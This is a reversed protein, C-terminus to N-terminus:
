PPGQPARMAREVVGLKKSLTDPSAAAKAAAAALAAGDCPWRDIGLAACSEALDAAEIGRRLAEPSGGRDPHARLAVARRAATIEQPEAPWRKLGLEVAFWPPPAAGQGLAIRLAAEFGAGRCEEAVDFWAVGRGAFNLVQDPRAGGSRGARGLAACLASAVAFRLCAGNGHASCRCVVTLEGEVRALAALALHLSGGPRAQALLWVTLAGALGATEHPAARGAAYARWADGLRSREAQPLSLALGLADDAGPTIEVAGPGGYPWTATYVTLPM